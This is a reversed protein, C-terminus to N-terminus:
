SNEKLRESIVPEILDRNLPVQFNDALHYNLNKQIYGPEFANFLEDVYREVQDLDDARKSNEILCFLVTITRASQHYIKNLQIEAQEFKGSLSLAMALNLRIFVRNPYLAAAREAYNLAEAPRNLRLLIAAKLNLDVANGGNNRILMDVQKLAANWQGTFVLVNLMNTRARRNDPDIILAKEYYQISRPYDNKKAYIGAINAYTASSSTNLAKKLSLAKFYLQLARDYQGLKENQGYALDWALSLPPRASGPAKIMADEWLTQENAWALNRVYTSLGMSAILLVMVGMLARRFAPSKEKYYDCLWQSGIAVPLFLFLSPLYNRHEFIPELPIFTSEILHNMFFFLIALAVLPRRRIQMFGIALLLLILLIAPLTTWPQFLSTSYVIDHEVSLRNPVPYFIQSIYFVVVRSETLLRELITFPRMEYASMFSFLGSSILFWVGLVIILIGGALLGWLQMGRIQLSSLDQFCLAEILLLGFPLTAANEKSGLALIFSVGCGFLLLIRSLSHRSQRCKLYFYIGLIYFLAALAAMRQVIYTVAQTQIPNVAWLATAVFAIWIEKGRYQNNLNPTQLLSLITVFLFFSTLLHVCLNVLHYGFVNDQGVYWNFAFSLCAVPRYFRNGIIGGKQPSTFLTRSISELGLDRIHLGKNNVINPLDDFHWTANFTNSYSLVILLSLTAMFFAVKRRFGTRHRNIMTSPM